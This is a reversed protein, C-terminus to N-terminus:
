RHPRPGPLHHVAGDLRGLALHAGELAPLLKTIGLPPDPPLANPVFAHVQESAVTTVVHSGSRVREM